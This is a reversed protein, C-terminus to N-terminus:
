GLLRVANEVTVLLNEKGNKLANELTSVGLMISFIATIGGTYLIDIGEGVNGAFAITKVGKEKAITAVGIPTKGYM